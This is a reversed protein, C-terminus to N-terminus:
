SSTARPGRRQIRLGRRADTATRGGVRPRGLCGLAHRGDAEREGHGLADGVSARWSEVVVTGPVRRGRSQGAIPGTREFRTGWVSGVTDAPRAIPDCPHDAAEHDAHHPADHADSYESGERRACAGTATGLPAPCARVGVPRQVQSAM